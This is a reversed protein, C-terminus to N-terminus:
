RTLFSYHILPVYRIYANTINNQDLYKLQLLRNALLSSMQTRMIFVYLSDL